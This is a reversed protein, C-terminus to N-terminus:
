KMVGGLAQKDEQLARKAKQLVEEKMQEIMQNFQSKMINMEKRLQDNEKRLQSTTGENVKTVAPKDSIGERDIYRQPMDSAMTWGFRKCMQYQNLKSAYYTASSHRLIHPTLVRNLYRTSFKRLLKRTYHYSYPFLYDEPKISTLSEVYSKISNSCLPLYITRPLTKSFEIRVKYTKEEADYTLHKHRINLVEEIRAGSDFLFHMFARNCLSSAHELIIELDQYSIAPIEKNEYYTDIYRVLKPYVENDGQLWKYFKKIILKIEVKTREGIPDNTKLKTIKDTELGRIFCDMEEQQVKEFDSKINSGFVTLAYMYKLRTQKQIMKKRKHPVTKGIEADRLFRVIVERNHKLIREDAKLCKLTTDYRRAVHHIDKKQTNM